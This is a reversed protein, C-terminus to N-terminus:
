WTDLRLLAGVEVGHGNEIRLRSLKGTEQLLQEMTPYLFLLFHLRLHFLILRPGSALVSGTQSSTQVYVVGFTIPQKM